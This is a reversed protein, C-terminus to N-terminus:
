RSAEPGRQLLENDFTRLPMNLEEALAAVVSDAGRLRRRRAASVSREMSARDLPYLVVKGDRQWRVLSRQWDDMVQQWNPLRRRIASTVEVAVLMTLHFVYTGRDLGNRYELGQLHNVEEPIYSAVIVSSDVVLPEAVTESSM